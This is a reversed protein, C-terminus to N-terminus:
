GHTLKGEMSITAPSHPGTCVRLGKVAELRYENAKEHDGDLEAVKALGSLCAMTAPHDHLGHEHMIELGLNLEACADAYSGAVRLVKGSAILRPLRFIHRDGFRNKILEDSEKCSKLAMEDDGNLSSVRAAM